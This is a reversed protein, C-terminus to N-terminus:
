GKAKMRVNGGGDYGLAGHAGFVAVVRQVTCTDYSGEQAVEAELASLEVWPWPMVALRCHQWTASWM